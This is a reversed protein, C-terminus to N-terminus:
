LCAVGQGAEGVVRCGYVGHLCVGDPLRGCEVDHKVDPIRSRADHFVMQLNTIGAQKGLIEAAFVAVAASYEACEIPETIQQIM